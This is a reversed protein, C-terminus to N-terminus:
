QQATTAVPTCQFGLNETSQGVVVVVVALEFSAVMAISFYRDNSRTRELSLTGLGRRIM